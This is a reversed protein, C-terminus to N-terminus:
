MAGGNCLFFTLITKDIESFVLKGKQIFLEQYHQRPRECFLSPSHHAHLDHTGARTTPLRHQSTGMFSAGGITRSMSWWLALNGDAEDDAGPDDGPDPELEADFAFRRQERHPEEPEPLGFDDNDLGDNSGNNSTDDGDGAFDGLNQGLGEDEDNDLLRHFFGNNAFIGAREERLVYDSVNGDSQNDRQEQQL